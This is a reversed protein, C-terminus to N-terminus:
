PKRCTRSWSEQGRTSRSEIARRVAGRTAAACSREGTRAPSSECRKPQCRAAAAAAYPYRGFDTVGGGQVAEGRQCREPERANRGSGRPRTGEGGRGTACPDLLSDEIRHLQRGSQLWRKAAGEQKGEEGAGRERLVRSEAVDRADHAVAGAGDDGSGGDGDGILSGARHVGERGIGLTVVDRAKELGAGILHDQGAGAVAADVLLIDRDRDAAGVRDVGGQGRGRDRGVDDDGCVVNQDVGVLDLARLSHALREDRVQRNVAAAPVVKDQERGVDGGVAVSPEDAIAADRTDVVGVEDVAGVVLLGEEGLGAAARDAGGVDKWEVADLLELGGDGGVRGLETLGRTAHDIRDGFGAGVAEVAVGKVVVAGGAEVREVREVLEVVDEKLRNFDLVLEACGDATGDELVLEEKM